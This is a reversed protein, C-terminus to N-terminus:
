LLQGCYTNDTHLIVYQVNRQRYVVNQFFPIYKNMCLGNLMYVHFIEKNPTIVISGM